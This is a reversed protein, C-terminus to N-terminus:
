NQCYYKRKATIVEKKVEIRKKRFNKVKVNYNEPSPCTDLDHKLQDRQRVLMILEATVWSDTERVNTMNIMPAISDLFDIYAKYLLAWCECPCTQSYYNEWSIASLFREVENLSYNAM